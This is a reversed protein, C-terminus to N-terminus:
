GTRQKARHTFLAPWATMARFWAADLDSEVHIRRLDFLDGPRSPNDGSIYSCGFRFSAARAADIVNRDFADPGGVPYSLSVAPVGLERTLAAQSEEIERAMEDRPLKSLMHHSVGHSGIEMGGAHMERLESWTMPRCDAHPMRPMNFRGSLARITESQDLASLTKMRDLIGAALARREAVTDPIAADIGLADITVRPERTACIMHVLWDYAYPLGSEIYGTSVFFVAPVDLEKLIPFAVRYNDDYGDDFTVVIANRPPTRGADVYHQLERFTLPSYRRRVISMQERFQEASASVLDLDFPFANEDRITLVRHYALIRLKGGLLNRVGGVISLLGVRDLARAARQRRGIARPAAVSRQQELHSLNSLGM